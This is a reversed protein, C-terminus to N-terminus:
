IIWNPIFESILKEENIHLLLLNSQGAYYRQLVAAVQAATSNHIFGETELSPAKYWGHQLALEWAARTTVHYIM